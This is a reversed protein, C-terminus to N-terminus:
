EDDVGIAEAYRRRSRSGRALDIRGSWSPQSLLFEEGIAAGAHRLHAIAHADDALSAARASADSPTFGKAVLFRELEPRVRAATEADWEFGMKAWVFRGEWAAHIDIQAVGLEDYARWQERLIHSAIGRKQFAKEIVLYEHKAHLPGTGERVLKRTMDGVKAGSADAIGANITYFSTDGYRELDVRLGRHRLDSPLSAMRNLTASRTEGFLSRLIEPAERTTVLGEIQGLAAEGQPTRVPPAPRPAQRPPPAPRPAPAPAPAREIEAATSDDGFIASTDPIAVCRCNPFEGPHHREGNTEAIPPDDWAHRTGDLEEHMPRVREDGTSHWFYHTIGVRQQNERDLQSKLKATETRAILAARSRSVGFRGEIERAISEARRREPVDARIIRAVEAAQDEALSRILRRNEEVFREVEAASHRRGLDIGLVRRMDVDSFRQAEIAVKRLMDEVGRGDAIAQLKERLRRLRRDDDDGADSRAGQERKALEDLIPAVEARVVRELEDLM